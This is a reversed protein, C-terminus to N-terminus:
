DASRGAILNDKGGLNDEKGGLKEIPFLGPTGVSSAPQNDNVGLTKFKILKKRHFKLFLYM